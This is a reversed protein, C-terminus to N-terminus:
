RYESAEVTEVASMETLYDLMGGYATSYMPNSYAMFETVKDTLDVYGRMNHWHRMMTNESVYAAQANVTGIDQSFFSYDKISASNVLQM